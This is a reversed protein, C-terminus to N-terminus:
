GGHGTAGWLKARAAADQELTLGKSSAERRRQEMFADWSQRRRPRLRIYDCLLVLGFGILAGAALHGHSAIFWGIAVAVPYALYIV